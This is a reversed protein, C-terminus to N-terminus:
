LLYRIFLIVLSTVLLILVFILLYRFGGISIQNQERSRERKTEDM